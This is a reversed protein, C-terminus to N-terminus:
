NLSRRAYEVAEDTTSFTEAGLSELVSRKEGGAAVGLLTIRINLRARNLLDVASQTGIVGTPSDEFVTIGAPDDKLRAFPPLLKGEEVFVRAAELVDVEGGGLAFGIAALSHVPSPKLYGDVMQGHRRALWQMHGAGVLPLGEVGAVRLAIEAEPSYDTLDEGASQPRCPRATIVAAQIKGERVLALIRDRSSPSIGPRDLDALLSPTDVSPATRYHDAYARSGLTFQQFYRMVPSLTFERPHGLVASLAGEFEGLRSLDPDAHGADHKFLKVAAASPTEGGLSGVQRAWDAFDPEPREWEPSRMARLCNEWESPLRLAPNACWLQFIQAMLCIGAIDWECTIGHAEFTEITAEELPRVPYGTERSFHAVTRRLAERYGGPHVLVGDLDFLWLNM